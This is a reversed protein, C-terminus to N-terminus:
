KSKSSKGDSFLEGENVKKSKDIKVLHAYKGCKITGNRIDILIKDLDERRYKDFRSICKM